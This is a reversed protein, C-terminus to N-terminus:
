ATEPFAPTRAALLELLKDIDAFTRDAGALLLSETSQTTTVAWATMGAAKAATVGAVADEVVLCDKPATCLEAAARLFIDPAPKAQSVQEGNVVAGFMDQLANVRLFMSVTEASASSALALRYRTRLVALIEGLRAPVPNEREILARALRSKEWSLREIQADDGPLHNEALVRRFVERTRMGAFREYDFSSIGVGVLVTRYAEDHLAGSFLLVGDMDFLIARQHAAIIV